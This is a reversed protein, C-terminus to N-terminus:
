DLPSRAQGLKRRRKALSELICVDFYVDSIEGHRDEFIRPEGNIRRKRNVVNRMYGDNNIMDKRGRLPDSTAAAATLVLRFSFIQFNPMYVSVREVGDGVVPASKRVGHSRCSRGEEGGDAMDCVHERKAYCVHPPEWSESLGTLYLTSGFNGDIAIQQDQDNPKKGM